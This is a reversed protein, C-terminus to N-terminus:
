RPRLFWGASIASGTTYFNGACICIDAVYYNGATTVQRPAPQFRSVFVKAGPHFRRYVIALM